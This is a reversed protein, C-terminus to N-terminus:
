RIALNFFSKWKDVSAITFLKEVLEVPDMTRVEDKTVELPKSLFEYLYDESNKESVKEILGFIIEFGVSYQDEDTNIKMAIEKLENKIGIKKVLRALEFVDSTQLNRM